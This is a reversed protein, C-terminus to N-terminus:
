RGSRGGAGPPGPGLRRDGSGPVPPWARRWTATRPGPGSIGGGRGDHGPRHNKSPPIELVPAAPPGFARRHLQHDRGLQPPHIYPIDTLDQATAPLKLAVAVDHIMLAAEPAVLEAGILRGSGREARMAMFGRIEQPYTRAVGMEGLDYEAEVIDLGAGQAEAASLGVRAMQPDTFVARPLVRDKVPRPTDHTANYGAAEGQVVALNVVLAQGTVDGAAFIHPASTRLYRDVVPVGDRVEVGAAELNLGEINPRRGLAVLVAQATVEQEVGDQRFRVTKGEAGARVAVLETGTHVAVGDAELAERIAQGVRPSEKSLLREGRQIMTTAVGMRAAYHALECAIAGGGLVVLSSPLEPLDMFADALGSLPPWVERSGTALVIKAVSLLRGDVELTHPDRFSAQRRYLRLGQKLKEGVGRERGAALHEVVARKLERVQAYAGAGPLGMQKVLAACHLLTKSPM